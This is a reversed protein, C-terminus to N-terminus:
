MVLHLRNRNCQFYDRNCDHNGKDQFMRLFFVLANAHNSTLTHESLMRHSNICYVFNGIQILILAGSFLFIV